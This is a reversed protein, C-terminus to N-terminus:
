VDYPHTICQLEWSFSSDARWKVAMQADGEQQQESLFNYIFTFVNIQLDATEPGPAEKAEWFAMQLSVAQKEQSFGGNASKLETNQGSSKWRMNQEKWNADKCQKFRHLTHRQMSASAWQSSNKFHDTIYFYSKKANKEVPFRKKKAEYLLDPM